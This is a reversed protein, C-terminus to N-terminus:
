PQPHPYPPPTTCLGHDTHEGPTKSSCDHNPSTPLIRTTLHLPCECLLMLLSETPRSNGCWRGGASGSDASGAPAEGPEGLADWAPQAHLLWRNSQQKTAGKSPVVCCKPIWSKVPLTCTARLRQTQQRPPMRRPPRAARRLANRERRSSPKGAKPRWATHQARAAVTLPSHSHRMSFPHPFSHMCKSSLPTGKGGVCIIM